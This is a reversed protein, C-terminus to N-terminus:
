ALMRSSKFDVFEGGMPSGKSLELGKYEISKDDHVAAVVPTM